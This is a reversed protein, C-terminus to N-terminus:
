RDRSRTRGRQGSKPAVGLGPDRPKTPRERLGLFRNRPPLGPVPRHMSAAPLDEDKEEEGLGYADSSGPDEEEEEDEKEDDEDKDEEKDENGIPDEEGESSSRAEEAPKAQQM